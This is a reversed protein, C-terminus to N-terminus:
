RWHLRLVRLGAPCQGESRKAWNKAWDQGPKPGWERVFTGRRCAGTLAVFRAPARNDFLTVIVGRRGNPPEDEAETPVM